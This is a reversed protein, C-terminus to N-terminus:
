WVKKNTDSVDQIKQISDYYLQSHSAGLQNAMLLSSQIFYKHITSTDKYFNTLSIEIAERLEMEFFLKRHELFERAFFTFLERPTLSTGEIWMIM